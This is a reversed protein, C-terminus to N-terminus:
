GQQAKAGAHRHRRIARVILVIPLVFLLGIILLVPVIYIGIWIAARVLFKVANVLAEVASKFTEIIQWGGTEIPQSAIDPILDVSLASLRASEEYYRMQGKVIEIETQVQSLQNYVMMVDETRRAEQMIETLQEEAAELSRLRSALDTYQATVDEGSVTVNRVEVSAAKIQEIAENLRESPVRVTISAQTAPTAQDGFYSQYTNLNVVFGGMGEAMLRIDEAAEAPDVVVVSLNGNQVVLRENSTAVLATEGMAMEAPPAAPAELSYVGFDAEAGGAVREMLIPEPSMAASACAALLAAGILVMLPLTTRRRM